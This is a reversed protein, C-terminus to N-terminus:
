GEGGLTCFQIAELVHRTDIKDARAWEAFRRAVILIRAYTRASLKLDKVASRLVGIVHRDLVPLEPQTSKV